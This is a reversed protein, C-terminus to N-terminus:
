IDNHFIVKAAGIQLECSIIKAYMTKDQVDRVCKLVDM